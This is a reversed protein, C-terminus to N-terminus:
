PLQNSPLNSTLSPVCSAAVQECSRAHNCCNGGSRVLVSLADSADVDISLREGDCSFNGMWSESSRSKKNRKKKKTERLCNTVREM